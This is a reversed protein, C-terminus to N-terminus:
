VMGPLRGPTGCASSTGIVPTSWTNRFASRQGSPWRRMFTPPSPTPHPSAHPWRLYMAVTTSHHPTSSASKVVGGAPHPQLFASGCPNKFTCPQAQPQRSCHVTRRCIECCEQPPLASVRAASRAWHGAPLCLWPVASGACQGLALPRQGKAQMASCGLTRCQVEHGAPTQM